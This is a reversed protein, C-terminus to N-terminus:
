YNLGIVAVGDYYMIRAERVHGDGIPTTILKYPDFTLSCFPITISTYVKLPLSSGFTVDNDNMKGTPL